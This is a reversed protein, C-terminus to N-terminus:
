YLHIYMCWVCKYIYIYVRVCTKRYECVCVTYIFLNIAKLNVTDCEIEGDKRACIIKQGTERFSIEKEGKGVQIM